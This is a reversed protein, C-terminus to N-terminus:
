GDTDGGRFLWKTLEERLVQAEDVTLLMESSFTDRTLQITCVEGRVSVANPRDDGDTDFVEISM